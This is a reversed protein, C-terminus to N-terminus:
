SSSACFSNQWWPFFYDCWSQLRSCSVSRLHLNAWRQCDRFPLKDWWTFSFWLSSNVCIGSHCNYPPFPGVRSFGVLVPPSGTLLCDGNCVLPALSESFVSVHGSRSVWRGPSSARRLAEPHSIWKLFPCSIILHWEFSTLTLTVEWYVIYKWSFWKPNSVHFLPGSNPDQFNMHKTPSTVKRYNCGPRCCLEVSCALQHAQHILSSQNQSLPGAEFSYHSLSPPLNWADTKPM